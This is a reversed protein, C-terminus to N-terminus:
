AVRQLLQDLFERRCGEEGFYFHSGNQFAVHHFEATTHLMWSLMDAESVVPDKAGGFATISCTLRPALVNDDFRYQEFAEFDSRIMPLKIKIFSDSLGPPLGGISQIHRIVDDDGEAHHATKTAAMVVNVQTLSQPSKIASVVLQSLKIAPNRVQLRRAVEFAVMGGLSHGFFSLPRAGWFDDGGMAMMSGYILEVIDELRTLPPADTKSRGPYAVAFVECKKNGLFHKSVIQFSNRDGGVHHFCVLRSGGEVPAPSLRSLSM